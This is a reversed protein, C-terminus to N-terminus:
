IILELKGAKFYDVESFGSRKTTMIKRYKQNEPEKM